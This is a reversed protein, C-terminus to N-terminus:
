CELGCLALSIGSTCSHGGVGEDGAVGVDGQGPREATEVGVQFAHRADRHHRAFFLLREGAAEAVLAIDLRRACQHQRMQAEHHVDRAAVGAVTQRDAVEHLFAVDAEHLGHLAEVGVEAYAEHGERDVPDTGLDVFVHQAVPAQQLDGGGLRLALQEEVQAAHLLVEAPEGGLLGRRHRALEADLGRLDGLHLAAQARAVDGEVGRGRVGLVLVDVVRGGIQGRGVGVRRLLDLLVLPLVSRV